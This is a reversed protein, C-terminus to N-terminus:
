KSGGIVKSSLSPRALDEHTIVRGGFDEAKPGQVTPEATKETTPTQSIIAPKATTPRRAVIGSPSRDYNLSSHITIVPKNPDSTDLKYFVVQSVPNKQAQLTKYVDEPVQIASNTNPALGYLWKGGVKVGFKFDALDNARYTTVPNVNVQYNNGDQKLEAQPRKLSFWAKVRDTLGAYKVEGKLFKDHEETSQNYQWRYAPQQQAYDIASGAATAAQGPAPASPTQTSTATQAGGTAPSQGAPAQVPTGSQPTAATQGSAPVASELKSTREELSYVKKGLEARQISEFETRQISENELQQRLKEFEARQATFQAQYKSDLSQETKTQARNVINDTAREYLTPGYRWGGFGLAAALALVPIGFRIARKGPVLASARIAGREPNAFYDAPLGDAIRNDTGYRLHAREELPQNSKLYETRREKIFEDSAINGEFKGVYKLATELIGRNIEFGFAAKSGKMIMDAAEKDTGAYARASSYSDAISMAKSKAVETSVGLESSLRDLLVGKNYQLIQAM